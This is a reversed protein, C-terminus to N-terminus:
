MYDHFGGVPYEIKLEIEKNVLKPGKLPLMLITCVVDLTRFVNLLCVTYLMYLPSFTPHNFSSSCAHDNVRYMYTRYCVLLDNKPLKNIKM